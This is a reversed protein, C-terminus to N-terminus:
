GVEFSVFSSPVSFDIFLLSSDSTEFSVTLIAACDPVGPVCLVDIKFLREVAVTVEAKSIGRPCFNWRDFADRM